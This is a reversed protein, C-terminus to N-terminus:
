AAQTARQEILAKPVSLNYLAETDNVLTPHRQLTESMQSEYTRWDPYDRDLQAEVNQRKLSQVESVLPQNEKKLEQRAKDLFHKEVDAWTSPSFEGNAQDAGGEILNWGYQRALNRMYGAPDAEFANYADVKTQNTSIGQLRKTFEGQMQKYAAQLEPKGEISKPDFFSEVDGSDPGTETTQSLAVSQEESSGPAEGTTGTPDPAAQGESAALEM